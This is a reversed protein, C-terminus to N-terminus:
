INTLSDLLDRMIKEHGEGWELIKTTAADYNYVVGKNYKNQDGEVVAEFGVSSFIANTGYYTGKFRTLNNSKSVIEKIEIKILSM